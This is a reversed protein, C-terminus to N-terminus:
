HTCASFYQEFKGCPSYLLSCEDRLVKFEEFRAGRLWLCAKGTQQDAPANSARFEGGKWCVRMMTTM